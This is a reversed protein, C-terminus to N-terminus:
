SELALAQRINKPPEQPIPGLPFAGQIVSAALQMIAAIPVNVAVREVLEIGGQTKHAVFCATTSNPVIFLEEVFPAEASARQMEQPAGDIRKGM